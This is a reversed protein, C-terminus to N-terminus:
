RMSQKVIRYLFAYGFFFSSTLVSSNAVSSFKGKTVVKRWPYSLNVEIKLLNLLKSDPSEQEFAIKELFFSM